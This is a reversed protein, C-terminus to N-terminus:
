GEIGMNMDLVIEDDLMQYITLEPLITILMETFSDDQLYNNQSPAAFFQATQM